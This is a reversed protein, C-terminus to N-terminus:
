RPFEKKEGGPIEEGTQTDVLHFEYSLVNGSESDVDVLLYSGYEGDRPRILSGPNFMWVGSPLRKALKRHTHGSLFFRCGLSNVYEDTIGSWRNGHELHVTGFAFRVDRTVPLGVYYDCNGRVGLFNRMILSPPLESDGLHFWNTVDIQHRNVCRQMIETDSHTDSVIFFRLKSM